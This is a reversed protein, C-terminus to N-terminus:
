IFLCVRMMKKTFVGLGGDPKRQLMLQSTPYLDQYWNNMLAVKDAYEDEPIIQEYIISPNLKNNSLNTNFLLLSILIQFTLNAVIKIM